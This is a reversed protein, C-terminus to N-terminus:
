LELRAHQYQALWHSSWPDGLYNFILSSPAMRPVAVAELVSGCLVHFGGASGHGLADDRAIPSLTQVQTSM